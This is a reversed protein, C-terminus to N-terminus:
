IRALSPQAAALSMVAGAGAALPAAITGDAGILVAQPTGTVGFARGAAFDPDLLVPATFGEDRNADVSGSSIVLLRPSGDTRGAEWARLEPRMQQCYGCSPSWFLVLTPTGDVDALDVLNGDLDPLRVAPAPDGVRPGPGTGHRHSDSGNAPRLPLETRHGRAAGLTHELATVRGLLRGQQRTLEVLLWGQSALLGAIVVAAALGVQQAGSLERVWALAGPALRSPGAALVVGAAAALLGNRVLTRRGVPGASLRGFCGCAPAEGRALSRGIVAIFAVLLVVAALAAWWAVRPLLLTVAIALEVAPLAVAVPGTFRAPLGFTRLARAFAARDALKVVGALGFVAALALRLAILVTAM